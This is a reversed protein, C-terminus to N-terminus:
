GGAAGRMARDKVAQRFFREVPAYDAHRAWTRLRFRHLDIPDRELAVRGESLAHFALKPPADNLIVVDVRDSRLKEGLAMILTRVLVSRESLATDRDLLVAVDIDSDVRATGRAQSGFLLAARVSAVSGFAEGIARVLADTEGSTAQIM